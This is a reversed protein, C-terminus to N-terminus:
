TREIKHKTHSQEVVQLIGEERDSPEVRGRFRAEKEFAHTDGFGAGGHEEAFFRAVVILAERVHREIWCLTAQDFHKVARAEVAHIAQGRQRVM